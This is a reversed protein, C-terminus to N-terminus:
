DPVNISRESDSSWPDLKSANIDSTGFESSPEQTDSSFEDGMEAKNLLSVTTTLNTPVTLVFWPRKFWLIIAFSFAQVATCFVAFILVLGLFDQYEVGNPLNRAANEAMILVVIFGIMGIIVLLNWAMIVHLWFRSEMNYAAFNVWTCHLFAAASVGYLYPIITELFVPLFTFWAVNLRNWLIYGWASAYLISGILSCVFTFSLLGWLKNEDSMANPGLKPRHEDQDEDNVETAGHQLLPNLYGIWLTFAINQIGFFSCLLFVLDYNGTHDRIVGFAFPACFLVFQFILATFSFATDSGAEPLVMAIATFVTPEFLGTAIGLGIIGFLPHIKTVSLVICSVTFTISGLGLLTLVMGKKSIVWGIAISVPVGVLFVFASYIGSELNTMKWKETLYDTLFVMIVYIVSWLTGCMTFLIWYEISCSKIVTWVSPQVEETQHRSNLLPDAWYDIVFFIIAITVAIAPVFDVISYAFVDPHLEELLLPIGSLGAAAGLMGAASTFGFSVELTPAIPDNELFWRMCILTMLVELPGEGIGFIARGLLKLYFIDTYIFITNGLLVCIASALTLSRISISGVLLSTALSALIATVPTAAYLVSIDTASLNYAERLTPVAASVLDDTSTCVFFFSSAAFLVFFRVILSRTNLCCAVRGTTQLDHADIEPNYTGPGLESSDLQLHREDQSDFSSEESSDSNM